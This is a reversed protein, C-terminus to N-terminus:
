YFWSLSLSQRATMQHHPPMTSDMTIPAAESWLPLCLLQSAWVEPGPLLAQWFKPWTPVRSGWGQPGVGATCLLATQLPLEYKLRVTPLAQHGSTLGLVWLTSPSFWSWPNNKAGTGHSAWVQKCILIREGMGGRRQRDRGWYVFLYAFTFFLAYCHNMRLKCNMILIHTHLIYIPVLIDALVIKHLQSKGELKIHTGPTQFWTVLSTCCAGQGVSGDQWSM